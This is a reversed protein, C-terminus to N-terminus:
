RVNTAGTHRSSTRRTKAVDSASVRRTTGSSGAVALAGSNADRRLILPEFGKSGYNAKAIDLRVLNRRHPEAIGLHSATSEAVASLNAQWRIGDTLASSGRSASAQDGAGGLVSSRNAHHSLIVAAGSQMAIREFAGVVTTMHSSDNEEGSHFRRLPDVILLRASKAIEVVKMLADEVVEGDAILKLRKKGALPFVLLHRSLREVLADCAGADKFEAMEQIRQLAAQLRWRMVDHSEEALLFVVPAGANSVMGPTLVGGGVPLGAAIDCAIQMLLMTKGVGGPGVLAGVTGALLGSLVHDLPPPPESLARRIDLRQDLLNM